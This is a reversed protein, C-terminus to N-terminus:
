LGVEQGVGAVAHAAIKGLGLAVVVGDGKIQHLGEGVAPQGAGAVGDRRQAPVHPAQEPGLVALQIGVVVGVEVALDVGDVGVAGQRAVVGVVDADEAGLLPRQG